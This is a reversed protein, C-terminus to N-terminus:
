KRKKKKRGVYTVKRGVMKIARRTATPRNRTTRKSKRKSKSTPKTTPQRGGM